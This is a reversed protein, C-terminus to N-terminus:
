EIGYKKRFDGIWDQHKESGAIQESLRQISLSAVKSRYEEPVYKLLMPMLGRNAGNAECHFVPSREDHLLVFIGDNVIIPSSFGKGIEPTEWLKKPGGEPWAQLLGTESSIGRGDKGRWQSWDNEGALVSGAMVLLLMSVVAFQPKTKVSMKGRLAKPTRFLREEGSRCAGINKPVKLM